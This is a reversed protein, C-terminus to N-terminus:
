DLDDMSSASMSDYDSMSDNYLLYDDETMEDVEDKTFGWRRYRDYKQNSWGCWDRHKYHNIRFIDVSVYNSKESDVRFGTELICRSQDEMYFWNPRVCYRAKSPKVISKIYRNLSRDLKYYTELNEFLSEDPNLYKGSTGYVICNVGIGDARDQYLKLTDVLRECSIQTESSIPAFLFEDLDIFACWKTEYKVKSLCDNYAGCQIENWKGLDGDHYDYPWDTVTVLGDQIYPDLVQHWNDTSNNDYLYFHEVGQERHFEIWEKFYISENQFIACITLEYEAFCIVPQILVLIFLIFKKM